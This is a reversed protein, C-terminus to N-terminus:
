CDVEALQTLKYKNSYLYLVQDSFKRSIESSTKKIWNFLSIERVVHNSTNKKKNKADKKRLYIFRKGLKVSM